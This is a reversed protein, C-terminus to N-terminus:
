SGEVRSRSRLSWVQTVGVRRVRMVRRIVEFRFWVGHILGEGRGRRRVTCVLSPVGVELVGCSSQVRVGPTEVLWSVIHTIIRPYLGRTRDTGGANLTGM